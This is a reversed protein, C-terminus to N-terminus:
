LIVPVVIPGISNGIVALDYRLCVVTITHKKSISRGDAYLGMMPLVVSLSSLAM